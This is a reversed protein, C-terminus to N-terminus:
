VGSERDLIAPYVEEWSEECEVYKNWDSCNETIVVAFRERM